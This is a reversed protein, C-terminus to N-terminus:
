AETVSMSGRFKRIGGVVHASSGSLKRSYSLEGQPRASAVRSDADSVREVSTASKISDQGVGKAEISGRLNCKPM